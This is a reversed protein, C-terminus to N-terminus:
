VFVFYFKCRKFFNQLNSIFFPYIFVSVKIANLLREPNLNPMSLKFFVFISVGVQTKKNV